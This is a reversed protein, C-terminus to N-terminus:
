KTSMLETKDASGKSSGLWYNMVTAVITGLLFGLVTDVIRINAQPVNMFTVGGIYGAAVLSWFWSLRMMFKRTVVKDTTEEM